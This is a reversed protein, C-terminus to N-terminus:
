GLWILYTLFINTNLTSYQKLGGLQNSYIFNNSISYFEMRKRIIKEILKGLTNLLVISFFSKPSDYLIKNPKPIIILILMKFYSPWYGLNICVNVINIILILYLDNNIVQKLIKWLIKDLGSISSDNCKSITTKFEEKSFFNWEM